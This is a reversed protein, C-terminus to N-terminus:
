FTWYKSKTLKRWIRNLPQLPFTSIDWVILPWPPLRQQGIYAQFFRMILMSPLHQRTRIGQWNEDFESWRNRFLRIHRRWYSSLAAMKTSPDARFCLSPLYCQIKETLKWWMENPRKLYTSFTETLWPGPRCKQQRISRFVLKIFPTTSVQVQKRDLKM